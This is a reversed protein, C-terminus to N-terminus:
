RGPSVWTSTASRGRLKCHRVQRAKRNAPREAQENEFGSRSRSSPESGDPCVPQEQAMAGISRPAICGRGGSRRGPRESAANSNAIAQSISCWGLSDAAPARLSSESEVVTATVSPQASRKPNASSTTGSQSVGSGLSAGERELREHRDSGHVALAMGFRHREGQDSDEDDEAEDIRRSMATRSGSLCGLWRCCNRDFAVFRVLLRALLSVM